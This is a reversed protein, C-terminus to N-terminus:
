RLAAKRALFRDVVSLTLPDVAGKLATQRELNDLWREPNEVMAWRSACDRRRLRHHDRRRFRDIWRILDNAQGTELWVILEDAFPIADRNHVGWWRGPNGWEDSDKVMKAVYKCAYKAVAGYSRAVEARTGSWLHNHDGSGVVEFWARKIWNKVQAYLEWPTLNKDWALLHFHPAGRKQPELKWVFGANPFRRAFRDCFARRDRKWVTPSRPYEGPYTLTLMVPLASRQVKALTQTLHSQSKRSFGAVVGRKFVKPKAFTSRTHYLAERKCKIYSGEPCFELEARGDSVVAVASPYAVKKEGVSWPIPIIVGSSPKETYTIEGTAMDVERCMVPGDGIGIGDNRSLADPPLEIPQISMRLKTM